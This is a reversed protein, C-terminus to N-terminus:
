GASGAALGGRLLDLAQRLFPSRETAPKALAAILLGDYAAVLAEARGHDRARDTGPAGATVDAVVDVLRARHDSLVGALEPDRRAALTLELRALLLDPGDLWRLLLDLAASVGDCGPDSRLREALADVDAVLRGSVDEALARQLASRTRLYASCSGEPLGAARDVARHTLGRLGEAALVAVGADLLQRRRPTAPRSSRSTPPRPTM